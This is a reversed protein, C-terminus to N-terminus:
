LKDQKEFGFEFPSVYRDHDHASSIYATNCFRFDGVIVHGQRKSQEHWDAHCQKSIGNATFIGNKYERRRSTWCDFIFPLFFM